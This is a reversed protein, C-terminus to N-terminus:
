FGNPVPNYGMWNAAPSSFCFVSAFVLIGTSCSAEYVGNNGGASDIQQVFWWGHLFLIIVAVTCIPGCLGGVLASLIYVLIQYAQNSAATGALYSILYATLCQNESLASGLYGWSTTAGQSCGSGGTGSGSEVISSGGGGDGGCEEGCNAAMLKHPQTFYQEEWFADTVSSVYDSGVYIPIVNFVYRFFGSTVNSGTTTNNEVLLVMNLLTTGDKTQLVVGWHPYVDSCGTPTTTTTLNTFITTFNTREDASV